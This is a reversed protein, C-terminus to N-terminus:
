DFGSDFCHDTQAGERELVTGICASSGAKKMKTQFTGEREGMNLRLTQKRERERERTKKKKKKKLLCLV